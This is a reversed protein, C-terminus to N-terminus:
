PWRYPISAFFLGDFHSETKLPNIEHKYMDEYSTEEIRTSIRWVHSNSEVGVRSAKM